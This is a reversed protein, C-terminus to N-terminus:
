SPRAGMEQKINNQSKSTTSCRIPRMILDKLMLRFHIKIWPLLMFYCRFKQGGGLPARYISLFYELLHRFEPFTLPEAKRQIGGSPVRFASTDGASSFISPVEYFRGLLSMQALLVGDSNVYSGQPPRQRLASMRM